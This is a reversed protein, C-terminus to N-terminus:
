RSAGEAPPASPTRVGRQRWYDLEAQQDLESKRYADYYTTQGFLRPLLKGPNRRRFDTDEAALSGRITPDVGMRTTWAVLAPDSGGAGPKGGLAVVADAQPTPDTLNSGGPTPTPLAALTEPMQLPKPPLIAFEDPRNGPPTLNMLNPEESSSCGALLLAVGAILTMRASIAPQM